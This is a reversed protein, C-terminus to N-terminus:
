WLSPNLYKLNKAAIEDIKSSLQLDIKEHSAKINIQLQDISDVGILVNDIYEKNCCYMISLDSIDLAFEESIYRIRQLEELLGKVAVHSSDLAKFFLGQLFSSRTHIIKKKEKAKKLLEGRQTDNDLLNFPVQILDIRDDDIVDSLEENTYVSVGLFSILNLDKYKLLEELVDPHSTYSDFSHFMLSYLRDVKLDNIYKDIRKKLTEKDTQKPLKTIIDFRKENNLSHFSGIVQHANGYVEATDLIQINSKFAEDLIKHSTDIPLKGIKNNVGYSLGFQATGLILKSKMM